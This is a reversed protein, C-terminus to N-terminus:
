AAAVMIGFAELIQPNNKFAIRAVARFEVLWERLERLAENKLQTSNEAMGKLRSREEKLTLLAKVATRAQQLEKNGIGYAELSIGLRQLRTYFYDAQRIVEWDNKAFREIRLKHLQTPESRLAVRVVQAHEKFQRQLSALQTNVQQAVDWNKDYRDTQEDQCNKVKTLLSKGTQMRAPTFGYAEMQQRISVERETNYIALHAAELININSNLKM